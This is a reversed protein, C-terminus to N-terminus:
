GADEIRWLSREIRAGRITLGAVDPAPEGCVIFRPVENGGSRYELANFGCGALHARVAPSESETCFIGTWAQLDGRRLVSGTDASGAYLPREFRRYLQRMGTRIAEFDPSAARAAMDANQAAMDPFDLRWLTDPWDDGGEVKACVRGRPLGLAARVDCARIRQHLVAAANGPRAYYFNLSVIM